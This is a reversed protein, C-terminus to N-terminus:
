GLLYERVEIIVTEGEQVWVENQVAYFGAPATVRILDPDNGDQSEIEVVIVGYDTPIHFEDPTGFRSVLANTFVVNGLLEEVPEFSVSYVTGPSIGPHAYSQEPTVMAPPEEMSYSSGFGPYPEASGHHTEGSAASAALLLLIPLGAVVLARLWERKTPDAM